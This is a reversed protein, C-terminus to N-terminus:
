HGRRLFREQRGRVATLLAARLQDRAMIPDFLALRQKGVAELKAVVGLDRMQLLGRAISEPDLPDVYVAADGAVELLSSNSATVVPTGAAFAELLPLGFGEYLSPYAVAAATQLIAWRTADDVYGTQFVHHSIGLDEIVPEFTTYGKGVLVLNLDPWARTTITFGKLLNPVNKRRDLGGNYVIYTMDKISDPVLGGTAPRSLDGFVPPIVTARRRFLSRIDHASSESLTFISDSRLMAATTWVLYPIAFAPDRYLYLRPLRLPVLDHTTSITWTKKVPFFPIGNNAPAWYLDFQRTRLLRPLDYQDWVLNRRSGFAIWEISPFLKQDHESAANTLLCVHARMGLLCQVAAKLYSHFGIGPVQLMRADVAIYVRDLDAASSNEIM